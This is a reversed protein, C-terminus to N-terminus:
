RTTQTSLDKVMKIPISTTISDPRFIQVTYDGPNPITWCCFASTGPELTITGPSLAIIRSSTDVLRVSLSLPNTLGPISTGRLMIPENVTYESKQKIPPNKQTAFSPRVPTGVRLDTFVPQSPAGGSSPTDVGSRDDPLLTAFWIGGIFLIVIIVAIVVIKPNM